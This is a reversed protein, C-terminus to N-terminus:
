YSINARVTSVQVAHLLAGCNQIAVKGQVECNIWLLGPLPQNAEACLQQIENQQSSHCERWVFRDYTCPGVSHNDAINGTSLARQCPGVRQNTFTLYISSVYDCFLPMVISSLIKTLYFPRHKKCYM